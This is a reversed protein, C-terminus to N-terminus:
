VKLLNMFQYNMLGWKPAAVLEPPSQSLFREIVIREPVIEIIKRCLSLYQEPEYITPFAKGAKWQRYLETGYLIQLQHLKLTEIPLSSTKRVTELIMEETEGPLGAILHVGIHLGVDSLKKLTTEVDNWSHNRNINRLTLDHSTEAGIEVFVPKQKNIESLLNVTEDSVSDPRTAIVLGVIGEVDLAEQYLKRLYESVKGHTGTYSQFYALYKMEPYKRAFFIKGKELQLTVSESPNCYGPTFSDNRCYSCGGTSITGDRNPCTFGADVSLKQVKLHPFITNLYERYTKM